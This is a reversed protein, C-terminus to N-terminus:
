MKTGPEGVIEKLLQDVVEDLLSDSEKGGYGEFKLRIVGKSDLVYVTPWGHVNWATSIPGEAGGGNWFSQWTMREKAVARDADAYTGDGNVGVLAFSKGELRQSMAREHPVMQMCPGCWSAWFSLVVVKGRYNSLGLTRGKLDKAEIEPAVKGLSLHRCEYLDVGAQEGLTPKPQRLGPGSPFNPCDGYEDIVTQFLQEARHFIAESDGARAEAQYDAKAKQAAANTFISSPAIKWFALDEAKRKTLRALAFTACGRAARDPNKASAIQLFEITPQHLPDGDIGLVRCIQGINPHASHYERLFEVAQLGYPRLSRASIRVNTVIWELLEFATPSRPNQRVAELIKPIVADNAQVYAEWLKEKQDGEAAKTYAGYAADVDNVQRRLANLQESVDVTKDTTSAAPLNTTPADTAQCTNSILGAIELLWMLGIASKILNM